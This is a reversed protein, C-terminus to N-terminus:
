LFNLADYIAAFTISLCLNLVFLIVFIDYGLFDNASKSPIIGKYFKSGWTGFYFLYLSM